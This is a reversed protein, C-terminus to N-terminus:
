QQALPNSALWADVLFESLFVFGGEARVSKQKNIDLFSANITKMHSLFEAQFRRKLAVCLM